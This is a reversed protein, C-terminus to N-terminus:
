PHVASVADLDFGSTGSGSLAGNESTHRILIGNSDRTANDGTSRLRVFRVWQLGPVGLTALDFSDGGSRTPDTPDDGTTASVGAFGQAYYGPQRLKATDTAVPPNVRSPFRLWEGDFLAVEVMAPEMYRNNPDGNVFIVNEFVTFDPGEGDEIINDTFELVISGGGSTSANLSVVETDRWAPTFPGHGDPPGLANNPLKSSGYAGASLPTFSRVRDAFPDSTTGASSRQNTMPLLRVMTTSFPSAKGDSTHALLTYRYTPGVNLGHDVFNTGTGRYVEVGDRQVSVGILPASMERAIARPQWALGAKNRSPVVILTNRVALDFTKRFTLGDADRVQVTFRHTQERADAIGQLHGDAALQWGPPLVGSVISWEYPATGGTSEFTGVYPANPAAPPLPSETTIDLANAVKLLLTQQVTTQQSDTVTVEIEEDGADDSTGSIVGTSADCTWAPSASQITWAYPPMGGQATLVARYPMAAIANPLTTTTIALPTLPKVLFASQTSASAGEADFVTVTTVTSQAAHGIGSIMGISPDFAFGAPLPAAQWAYPPKGGVAVFVHSYAVGETATAPPPSIIALAIKALKVTEPVYDDPNDSQADGSADTKKTKPKAQSLDFVPFWVGHSKVQRSLGSGGSGEIQTIGSPLLAGLAAKDGRRLLTVLDDDPGGVGAPSANSAIQNSGSMSRHSARPSASSESTTSSGADNALAATTEQDHFGGGGRIGVYVGGIMTAVLVVIITFKRTHTRQRRM